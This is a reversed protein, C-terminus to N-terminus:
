DTKQDARRVADIFARVKDPDKKGPRAEVGSSVDVGWPHLVRIADAVNTPSLGGAVVINGLRRITQISDRRAEWDFTKGTGGPTLQTGSDLLFAHVVDPEFMMAWGDPKPRQEMPIGAFVKLDPRKKVVLDAVRPDENDGHMQVATLGAQTAIACITDETQNVFIGVKEVTRPIHEVISAAAEPLINRPSKEYFVFGLADAGADVAVHADEVNTIGCIKVWTM